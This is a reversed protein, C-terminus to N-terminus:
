SLVKEGLDTYISRYEIEYNDIHKQAEADALKRQMDSLERWAMRTIYEPIGLEYTVACHGLFARRNTGTNTLSNLMTYPWATIVEGMAKGYREHYGIFEIAQQLDRIEDTSKGWMGNKWDEWEWYPIYVRTIARGSGM